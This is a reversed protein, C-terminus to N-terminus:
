HFIVAALGTQFKSHLRTSGPAAAPDDRTCCKQQNLDSWSMSQLIWIGRRHRVQMAARIPGLGTGYITVVQGPNAAETVGNVPQNAESVYNYAVAPGTGGSNVTFVGFQARVVQFQVAASTQGKYTVKVTNLGVPTDSPM